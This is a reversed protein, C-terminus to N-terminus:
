QLSGHVNWAVSNRVRGNYPLILWLWSMLFHIQNHELLVKNVFVPPWLKEVGSIPYFSDSNLPAMLKLCSSWPSGWQSPLMWHFVLLLHVLWVDSWISSPCELCLSYATGFDQPLLTDPTNLLEPLLETQNLCFSHAVRNTVVRLTYRWNKKRKRGQNGQRNFSVHKVVILLPEPVPREQGLFPLYSQYMSQKRGM